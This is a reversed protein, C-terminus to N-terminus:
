SLADLQHRAMTLDAHASDEPLASLARTLLARAEETRGRAILARTLPNAARLELAVARRAQAIAVAARLDTEAGAQDGLACRLDGRAILHAAFVTPNDSEQRCLEDLGALGGAADGDLVRMQALLRRAEPLRPFGGGSWTELAREALRLAQGPEGLNAQAWALSCTLQNAMHLKNARAIALGKGASDAADEWEGLLLQLWAQVNLAIMAEFPVESANASAVARAARQRALDTHGLMYATEVGAGKVLMDEGMFPSGGARTVVDTWPPIHAEAGLMDGIAHRSTVQAMLAMRLSAAGGERRALDLFQDAVARAHQGSMLANMYRGLMQLTLSELKGSREAVRAIRDHVQAYEDSGPGNIVAVSESLHVLFEVERDDRAPSPEVGALEVLVQEFSHRAERYAHRAAAAEAARAWADAALQPRGAASWHHAVVEPQLKAQEPFQEVLVRATEAHLTRQRERTLAAYAADLILAHKFQYSAKPPQGRVYILEADALQALCAQLQTATHPAVAAVLDHHFERGLVAGLQAVEQAAGTRALRAQLSSRLTEPIDSVEGGRMMLRTLEEAFLPVGDTRRTVTEVLDANLPSAAAVDLVLERIEDRSLPGLPIQVHHARVPWVQRFEPRATCLLMLPAIAGQEALVVLVEMSSPDVWQLDDIAIVLPAKRMLNFVWAALCALLRQRKRDPPLDLPPYVAPLELNLLEGLLPMAEALDMDSRELALRLEDVREAATEDGRWRIVQDLIRAIVFFPTNANLREGSCGIWLHEGSLRSRFENLLRTKGLGPEGSLLVLQGEGGQVRRWRGDMLRLEDERGVHARASGACRPELRAAPSPARVRIEALEGDGRGGGGEEFLFRNAAIARVSDTVMLAGPPARSQLWLAVEPAEGVFELDDDRRDVLVVGAHAGLRVTPLLNPAEGSAAAGLRNIIGLGARLARETADEQAEPYGFIIALNDSVGKTVFGGLPAVVEAVVQRYRDITERWAEPDLAGAAASRVLGCALVTVHRREASQPPAPFATEPSLDHSPAPATASLRYGVRAVTQIEFGGHAAALRRIAQICRNIADEGVVRGGWCATVLEDRSVVQGRRRNLAVLVQMVRPQLVIPGSPGILERSAPAVDLNALSFAAERALDILGPREPERQEAPDFM